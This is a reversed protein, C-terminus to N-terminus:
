RRAGSRAACAPPAVARCPAAPLIIREMSPDSSLNLYIAARSLAGTNRFENIFYNAEESTIGM